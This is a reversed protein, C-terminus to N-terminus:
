FSHGTCIWIMQVPVTGPNRWSHPINSKFYITDNETLVYVRSEELTIEFTGSLIAIFEEGEHRYAGSSEVGPEITWRQCDMMDAGSGLREIRLGIGLRPMLVGHDRTVVEPTESESAPGTIGHLTTGFFTALRKLVPIDLSMSTREISALETPTIGVADAVAKLTLRKGRRLRRFLPGIDAIDDGGKGNGQTQARDDLLAPNAAIDRIRMGKSRLRKIELTTRVDAATYLRRGGDSYGPRLLGKSEWVRITSPSVDALRAVDSIKLPAPSSDSSM